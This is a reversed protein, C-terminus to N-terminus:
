KKVTIWLYFGIKKLIIDIVSKPVLYKLLPLFKAPQNEIEGRFGDIRVEIKSFRKFMQEVENKTYLKTLPAGKKEPDHNDTYKSILETQTLKFKEGKLLGFKLLINVYYHISRKHYLMLKAIGNKKLVRYMENIAQQTNPTHHIVGWSFVFNFYENKFPLNEADANVSHGDLNFTNLRKKTIYAGKPTIDLGIIKSQERAFEETMTGLGCGVELVRKNKLSDYNIVKSFIKENKEDQGFPSTWKRFKRTLENFFKIGKAESFYAMPNKDWYEKIDIKKTAMHKPLLIPFEEHKNIKFHTGCNRCELFDINHNLDGKCDPCVLSNIFENTLSM